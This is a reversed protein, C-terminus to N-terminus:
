EKRGMEVVDIPNSIKSGQNMRPRVIRLLWLALLGIEACERSDGIQSDMVPLEIGM